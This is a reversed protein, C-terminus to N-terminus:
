CSYLFPLEQPDIVIYGFAIAKVVAQVRDAVHFKQIISCVHAKATHPSIGLEEAIQRNNLGNAILKLVIKERKTLLNPM